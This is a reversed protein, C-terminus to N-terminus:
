QDQGLQRGKDKGAVERFDGGCELFETVLKVGKPQPPKWYIGAGWRGKGSEIQPTYNDLVIKETLIAGGGV